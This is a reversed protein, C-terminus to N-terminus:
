TVNVPESFTVTLNGNLAVGSSGNAPTTTLVTPAADTIFTYVDNALGHDPPDNTDTDSIEAALTTVTCATGAPLLPTPDLVFTTAPGSGTTNTFPIPTGFWPCALTFAGATVTVPE